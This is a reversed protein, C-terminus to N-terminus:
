LLAIIYCTAFHLKNACVIFIGQLYVPEHSSSQNVSILRRLWNQQTMPSARLLLTTAVDFASECPEAHAQGFSYGLANCLDPRPRDGDRAHLADAVRAASECM